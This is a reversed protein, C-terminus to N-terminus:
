GADEEKRRLARGYFTPLHLGTAARDLLIIVLLLAAANLAGGLVLESASGWTFRYKLTAGVLEQFFRTGLVVGFPLLFGFLANILLPTNLRAREWYYAPLVVGMLAAATFLGSRLYVCDLLIGGFVAVSLGTRFSYAVTFYFVLDAVLPVLLRWDGLHMEVLVAVFVAVAAFILKM